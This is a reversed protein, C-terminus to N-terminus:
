IEDSYQFKQVGSIRVSNLDSLLVFSKYVYAGIVNFVIYTLRLQNKSTTQLTYSRRILYIL